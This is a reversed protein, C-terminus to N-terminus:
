NYSPSGLYQIVGSFDTSNILGNDDLDCSGATEGLADRCISLDLINVVGDENVDAQEATFLPGTLGSAASTRRVMWGYEVNTGCTVRLQTFDRSSTYKSSKQSYGPCSLADGFSQCEQKVVEYGPAYLRVKSIGDVGYESFPVAPNTKFREAFDFFDERLDIIGNNFTRAPKDGFKQVEMDNATGITDSTVRLIDGTGADKIYSRARYSCGCTLFQADVTKDHTGPVTVLNKDDLSSIFTSDQRKITAATALVDGVAMTSGAAIAGGQSNQSVNYGYLYTRDDGQNKRLWIGNQSEDTKLRITQCASKSPNDCVDLTVDKPKQCSYVTITGSLPGITPRPASPTMLVAPTPTAAATTVTPASTVDPQPTPTDSPVGNPCVYERSLRGIEEMPRLKWPGETLVLIRIEPCPQTWVDKDPVNFPAAFSDNRQTRSGCSLTSPLTILRSVSAGIIRNHVASNTAATDKVRMELAVRYKGGFSPIDTNFCLEGNLIGSWRSSSRPDSLAYQIDRNYQAPPLVFHPTQAQTFIPSQLVYTAIVAASIVFVGIVLPLPIFGKQSM